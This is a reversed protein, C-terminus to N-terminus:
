AVGALVSVRLRRCVPGLELWVSEAALLPHGGRTCRTTDSEVPLTTEIKIATPTASATGTPRGRENDPPM